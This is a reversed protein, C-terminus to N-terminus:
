CARVPKIVLSLKSVTSKKRDVVMTLRCHRHPGKAKIRYRVYFRDDLTQVQPPGVPHALRAEAAAQMNHSFHAQLDSLALRQQSRLLDSIVPRASLGVVTFVVLCIMPGRVKPGALASGVAEMGRALQNARRQRAAKKSLRGQRDSREAEEAAVVSARQRTSRQQRLAKLDAPEVPDDGDDFFSRPLPPREDPEQQEDNGPPWRM